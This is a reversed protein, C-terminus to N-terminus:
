RDKHETGAAEIAAKLEAETDVQLIVTAISENHICNRAISRYNRFPM